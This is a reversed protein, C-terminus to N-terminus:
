TALMTWKASQAGDDEGSVMGEEVTSGLGEAGPHCALLSRRRSVKLGSPKAVRRRTSRSGLAPPCYPQHPVVKAQPEEPGMASARASLMPRTSRSSGNKEGM